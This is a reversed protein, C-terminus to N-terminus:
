ANVHVSRNITTTTTATTATTAATTTTLMAVNAGCSKNVEPHGAQKGWKGSKCAL